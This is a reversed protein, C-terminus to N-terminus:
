SQRETRAPMNEVFIRSPYKRIWGVHPSSFGDLYRYFAGLDAPGPLVCRGTVQTKSPSEQLACITTVVVGVRVLEATFTSLQQVIRV